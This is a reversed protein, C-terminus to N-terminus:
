ADRGGGGGQSLERALRQVLQERVEPREYWGNAIRESVRGLVAPNMGSPIGNPDTSGALARAEESIQVSDAPKTRADPSVPAPQAPARDLPVSRAVRPDAPTQAADPRTRRIEM